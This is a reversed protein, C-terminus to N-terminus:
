SYYDELWKRMDGITPYGLFLSSSVKVDLEIRFKESIVLSMLSGFGVDAFSVDDERDSTELGAEDAILQSAKATIGSSKAPTEFVTAVTVVVTAAAKVVQPPASAAHPISTPLLENHPCTPKTNIAAIKPVVFAPVVIPAPTTTVKAKGEVAMMKDPPSFFKALLIRPYRHFDIGGFIGVIADDQMVYVDGFFANPDEFTPIMKVYSRYKAGLLLTKAFRM